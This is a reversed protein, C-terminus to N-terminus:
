ALRVSSVGGRYARLVEKHDATLAAGGITETSYTRSYDEIQEVRLNEPNSVTMAALDLVVDLIDDPVEAHGHSYTLRVRPAWVGRVRGWPWGMLRGPPHYPYGRTLENGLREYDRGEVLTYDLGGFDGLEVVTLPHDADVVLPRQPVRLVREGGAVEVQDDEVLTITQRTYKRVQASARRIALEAQAAPLSRDLHAELHAVTALPPLSM